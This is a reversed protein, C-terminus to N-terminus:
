LQIFVLVPSVTRFLQWLSLHLPSFRQKYKQHIFTMWSPSILDDLKPLHASNKKSVCRHLHGKARYNRTTITEVSNTAGIISTWASNSITARNVLFTTLHDHPRKFGFYLFLLRIGESGSRLRPLAHTTVHM